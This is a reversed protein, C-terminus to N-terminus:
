APRNRVPADRLVLWLGVATLVVAGLLVLPVTVPTPGVDSIRQFMEGQMDNGTVLAAVGVVPLLAPITLLIAGVVAGGHLRYFLAGVLQGSLVAGFSNAAMVLAFFWWGREWATPVDSEPFAHEWGAVRFALAEAAMLLTAGTSWVLGAVPASALNGLVVSPRTAGQPVFAVMHQRVLVLGVVFPVGFALSSLSAVWSRDVSWGVALVTLTVAAAAIGIVLAILTVYGHAVTNWGAISLWQPRRPGAHQPARVLDSALTTM